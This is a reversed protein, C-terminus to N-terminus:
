ISASPFLRKTVWFPISYIALFSYYVVGLCMATKPEDLFLGGHTKANNYGIYALSQENLGLEPVLKNGFVIAMLPFFYVLVAFVSKGIVKKQIEESVDFFAYRMRNFVAFLYIYIVINGGGIIQNFSLAFLGYFPFFILLSWKKPMAAMFVGSHVMIFEFGMLGAWQFIKDADGIEPSYWLKFYQYAIFGLTFFDVFNFLPNVKELISNKITPSSM